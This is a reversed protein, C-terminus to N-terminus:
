NLSLYLGLNLLKKSSKWSSICFCMGRCFCKHFVSMPFLLLPCVEENTLSHLM